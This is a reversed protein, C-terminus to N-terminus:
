VLHKIHNLDLDVTISVNQTPDIRPRVEPIYNTFLDFFLKREGVQSTTTAATTNSTESAVSTNGVVLPLCKQEFINLQYKNSSLSTRTLNYASSM